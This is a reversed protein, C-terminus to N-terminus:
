LKVPRAEFEGHWDDALVLFFPERPTRGAHAFALGYPRHQVNVVAGAALRQEAVVAEPLDLQFRSDAGDRTTAQLTLRLKGPREPAQAVADVRYDGAAATKAPSSSNSSGALSDSASSATSSAISATSSVLSEAHAPAWTALCSLAAVTMLRHLDMPTEENPSAGLM